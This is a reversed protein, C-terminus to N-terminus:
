QAVRKSQAMGLGRARRGARLARRARPMYAFAAVYSLVLAPIGAALAALHVDHAAAGPGDGLLFCPLAVLLGFTGAKGVFLVDIREARLASLVLGTAVVVAERAIMSAAFWTPVAGYVLIAIVTAGLVVRDVTPDLVKGLDSVQHFRRAVYGDLFDTSGALALVIAAAVRDDPGFLLGLAVGLLALRGVSLANPVTLIRKSPDQVRRALAGTAM